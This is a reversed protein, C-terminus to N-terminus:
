LAKGTSGKFKSDFIIAHGGWWGWGKSNLNIDAVPTDDM